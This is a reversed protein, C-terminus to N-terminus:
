CKKHLNHFIPILNWSGSNLSGKNLTFPQIFVHQCFEKGIKGYSVVESQVMMEVM